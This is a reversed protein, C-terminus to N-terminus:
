CSSRQKRRKKQLRRERGYERQAYIDLVELPMGLTKSMVVISCLTPARPTTFGAIWQYVAAPEVHLRRALELVGIEIVFQGFRTNWRASRHEEDETFVFNGQRGNTAM